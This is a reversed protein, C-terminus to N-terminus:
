ASTLVLAEYPAIEVRGSLIRGSILDTYKGNLVIYGSKNGTECAIIGGIGNGTRETLIVNGSAEAIPLMDVLRLLDSKGIVSGVLIVRGRGIRRETIVGLPAFECDTYAAVTRTGDKVEYADYCTSIDCYGDGIYKAKFEDSGIPRQYKTYVGALEELFSYPAAAYKNVDGDMVDSMPGVIWTGGNEVFEVIRDKLGNEDVTCVFPSIVVKYGDLAHATDIVDINYHGFASYYNEVLLERYDLGKIIPASEFTNLATSSYHLAIKSKICTKNIFDECKGLDAIAKKVEETVRYARGATSFLAGHALEHGSRHTRFLWYLNMQAGRAVPLVTNIYCNGVPRAGSEAFEGGNWGVQTETVWFPKDKVCRLFDYGFVTYPLREATDYHNYMAVDLKENLAYYGLSNHQMMDTGVNRAGYRHLLDAQEDVYSKIQAYQFDRWAKRLSPHRWQRPYPPQISDFDEYDLSWRAMGWADNLKDIGVYKDKLYDRFATKCNECFCGEDYPYIENDIQWGIVGEHTAFEKALAEVVGRNKKRAVASSKCVHCRSSVDSRFGDHTVVRMEEYKDLMYRPPTATPTCLVTYIGASYLRDVTRKLWDLRYEGERPELKGWAFEGMRLVNIGLAKCQEIDKEVESENWLEPYYAAGIYLQKM